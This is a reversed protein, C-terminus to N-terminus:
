VVTTKVVSQTVSVWIYQKLSWVWWAFGRRDCSAVGVENFLAQFNTQGFGSWGSGKSRGQIPQDWLMCYCAYYPNSGM